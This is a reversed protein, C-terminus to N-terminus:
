LQPRPNSDKQDSVLQKHYEKNSFINFAYNLFIPSLRAFLDRKLKAGM